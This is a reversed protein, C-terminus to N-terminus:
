IATNGFIQDGCPSQFATIQVNGQASCATESYRIGALPSFRYIKATWANSSNGFIQDGCPSQFWDNMGKSYNGANNGFIQDGCPSQFEDNILINACQDPKRIDLGRLPVSVKKNRITM